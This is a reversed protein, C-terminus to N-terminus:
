SAGDLAAVRRTSRVHTTEQLGNNVEKVTRPKRFTCALLLVFYTFSVGPGVSFGVPDSTSPSDATSEVFCQHRLPCMFVASGQWGYFTFNNMDHLHLVLTESDRLRWNAIPIPNKRARFNGM